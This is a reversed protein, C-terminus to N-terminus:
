TSQVNHRHLTYATDQAYNRYVIDTCLTRYMNDQVCHGPYLTQVYHRHMFRVTAKEQSKPESSDIDPSTKSISTDLESIHSMAYWSGRPKSDSAENSFYVRTVPNVLQVDAGSSICIVM